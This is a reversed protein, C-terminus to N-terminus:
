PPSLSSLQFRSVIQWQPVCSCILVSHMCRIRASSARCPFCFPLPFPGFEFCCFLFASVAIAVIPSIPSSSEKQSASWKVAIASVASVTALIVQAAFGPAVCWVRLLQLLKVDILFNESSALTAKLSPSLDETVTQM